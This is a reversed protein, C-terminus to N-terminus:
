TGYIHHEKIYEWVPDVILYKVSRKKQLHNRILSSSIHIEPIEVYQVPYPTAHSYKPRNVGVFQVLQVLEGINRWKPLYEIMDAGIIFYFQVDPERNKLLVMTDYTYSRGTRELEITEIKFAPNGAVSLELMNLRDRSTVDAPKDKHPPEQNPMFRIEDLELEQLVENALILHGLHPPDFTGGLIGVRKKKM